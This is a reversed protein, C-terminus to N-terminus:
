VAGGRVTGVFTEIAAAVALMNDTLVFHSANIVRVQVRPNDALPTQVSADGLEAHKGYLVLTPCRIAAWPPRYVFLMRLAQLYSVLPMTHLDLWPGMFRLVAWFSTLRARVWVDYTEYDIMRFHRRRLGAANALRALGHVAWFIPGSVTWVARLEWRLTSIVFPEIFVLGAIREPCREWMRVALNAGLCHGILIASRVGEHELLAEADRAIGDSAIGRRAHSAGHGRLDLVILRCRERFFPQRILHHWRTHNSGLGHVFILAPAAPELLGGVYYHILEGDAAALTKHTLLPSESPVSM